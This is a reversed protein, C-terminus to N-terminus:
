RATRGHPQPLVAPRASAPAPEHEIPVRSAHEPAVPRIASPAPRATQLFLLM